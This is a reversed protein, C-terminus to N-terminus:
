SSHRREAATRRALLMLSGNGALLDHNQDIVPLNQAIV